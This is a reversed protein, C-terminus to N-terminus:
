KSEKDEATGPIPEIKEWSSSMSYLFVSGDDCVALIIKDSSCIGVPKRVPEDGMLKDWEAEAEEATDCSPGAWCGNKTCGVYLRKELNGFLMSPKGCKCPKM